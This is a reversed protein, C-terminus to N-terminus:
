SSCIRRGVLSVQQRVTDDFTAGLLKATASSKTYSVRNEIALIAADVDDNPDAKKNGAAMPMEAVTVSLRNALYGVSKWTMDIADHDFLLCIEKIGPCRVLKLGQVKSVGHKFVCVPVIQRDWGLELLKWRLSLVNLISEVVVVIEPRIARVADINYVWYGAGWKVVGRSPFRKTTEGPEDVYTRGQYYVPIGYDYVPFIAFPEWRPDDMTYGVNAEVFDPYDLNKRRAMDTILKTYYNKPTSVIPTFGKPLDVREVVPVASQQTKDEAYLVQAAPVSSLGDESTFAYGLAKAWSMFFGKNNVGKNCRFCYTQGNKLNISRNGSKDGCEPCVIMLEDGHSRDAIVHFTSEIEQKLLPGIM